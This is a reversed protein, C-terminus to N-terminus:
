NIIVKSDDEACTLENGIFRFRIREELLGSKYSFNFSVGTILYNSIQVKFDGGIRSSLKEYSVILAKRWNPYDFFFNTIEEDTYSLRNYNKTLSPFYITFEENKWGSFFSIQFRQQILSKERSLYFNFSSIKADQSWLKAEDIALKKVQSFTFKSPLLTHIDISGTNEVPELTDNIQQKKFAIWSKTLREKLISFIFFASFIFAVILLSLSYKSAQYIQTLFFKYVSIFIYLTAIVGSIQSLFNWINFLTKKM